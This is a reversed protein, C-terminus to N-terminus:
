TQTEEECEESACSELRLERTWKGQNLLARFMPDTNASECKTVSWNAAAMHGLIQFFSRRAEVGHLAKSRFSGSWLSIGGGSWGPEARWMRHPVSRPDRPSAPDIRVVHFHRPKM